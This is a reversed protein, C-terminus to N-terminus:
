DNLPSPDDMRMPMLRGEGGDFTFLAPVSNGLGPRKKDVSLRANPLERILRLYYTDFRGAGVDVGVIDRWDGCGDCEDCIMFVRQSIQVKGSGNCDECPKFPVEPLDAPIAVEELADRGDNFITEIARRSPAGPTEGFNRDDKPVRVCIRGDTAYTWEGYTFPAKIAPRTDDLSCFRLLDIMTKTSKSEEAVSCPAPVAGSGTDSQPRTVAETGASLVKFVKPM